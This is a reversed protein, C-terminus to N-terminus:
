EKWNNTVYELLVEKKNELEEQIVLELLTNLIKGMSPGPKIGIQILDKGNVNLKKLSFCEEEDDFHYLLNLTEFARKIRDDNKNFPKQGLVDAVRLFILKKLSEKDMKTLMKRIFKKTPSFTVDHNKVLLLIEEVDKNSFKLEKLVKETIEISKEAHGKFHYRLEGNVIEQQYCHPKGIDHFLAALRIIRDNPCNKIVHYTHTWVDYAHYPNNQAFGMMNKIEPIIPLIIRSFCGLSKLLHAGSFMKNLEANIREKSIKLLNEKQALMETVTSFEITFGLVSQFRLARMIRLADENFRDKPNGVTRIVKNAIDQLGSFPDILGTSSAYAMANITFDRRALDKEIDTTFEISSPHRGDLYEGDIRFTTVEFIEKDIVISVTGHQIGTPLVEYNKTNFIYIIENPSAATCIDYDHPKRGMVMDRVCGGVVYAEYGAKNLENLIYEVKTPLAFM